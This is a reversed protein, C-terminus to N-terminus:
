KNKVPSLPMRDATCVRKVARGEASESGPRYGYMREYDRVVADCHDIGAQVAAGTDLWQLVEEDTPKGSWLGLEKKQSDVLCPYQKFHALVWAVERPDRGCCVHRLVGDIVMRGQWLKENVKSVGKFGSKSGPALVLEHVVGPFLEHTGPETAPEVRRRPM